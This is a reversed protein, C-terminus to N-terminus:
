TLFREGNGLLVGHAGAVGLELSEAVRHALMVFHETATPPCLEWATAEFLTLWRDFHRADIPLPLHKGDAPWSVTREDPRGLVLLRVNAAPTAGLRRDQPSSRDSCTTTACRAYFGRVLRDIMAEDIGTETQIQTAIAARRAAASRPYESM